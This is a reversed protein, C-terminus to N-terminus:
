DQTKELLKCVSVDVIANPSRNIIERLLDKDNNISNTFMLTPKNRCYIKYMWLFSFPIRSVRYIEDWNREFRKGFKGIDVVVYEDTIVIKYKLVLLAFYVISAAMIFTILFGFLEGLEIAGYLGITMALLLGVKYVISYKYEKVL